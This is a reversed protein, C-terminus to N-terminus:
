PLKGIASRVIMRFEPDRRALKKLKRYIKKLEYIIQRESCGLEAAIEATSMEYGEHCYRTSQENREDDEDPLLWIQDSTM